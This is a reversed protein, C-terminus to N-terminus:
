GDNEQLDYDKKIEDSDVNITALNDLILKAKREKLSSDEKAMIKLNRVNKLLKIMNLENELKDRGIIFWRSSLQQMKLSDEALCGFCDM